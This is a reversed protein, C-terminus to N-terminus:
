SGVEIRGFKVSSVNGVGDFALAAVKYAGPPPSGPPRLKWHRKGSAVVSIPTTCRTKKMLKGSAALFRCKKGVQKFVSVQVREISGSSAKKGARAACGKDAAKGSVVFRSGTKVTAIRVTPKKRDVCYGPETALRPEGTKLADLGPVPPDTPLPTLVAKPTAAAFPAKQFAVDSFQIAGTANVGATGFRFEIRDLDSVDVGDAKLLAIPARFQNLVVHQTSNPSTGLAKEVGGSYFDTLKHVSEEGERDIVAVYFNQTATRPDYFNGVPNLIEDNSQFAARFVLNDYPTADRADGRLTTTLTAPASWALTLQPGWSQIAANASTTGKIPGECALLAATTQTAPPNALVTAFPDPNCWQFISFGTGTYTGGADNPATPSLTTPRVGPSPRLIDLREGAPAIYTQKIQDECIPVHTAGTACASAPISGAEGTLWPLLETEGGVYARLFTPMTALGTKRQDEPSLRAKGTGTNSGCAIDSGSRDSNPWRTNYFNHNAGEVYYEVKAYPDNPVAYKGREFANAGAITTVDGDCAPLLTAFNTGVPIQKNRDIPALSFVAQLNYKRGPEPRARNYAIFETVGEGGRSHGMIGVKSFDLKGALQTGIGTQGNATQIATPAPGPTGQNWAYLVDLTNAIIEARAFGGADLVNTGDFGVLAGASPSIVVYGWSALLDSIYNYGGWSPWFGTESGIDESLEPGSPGTPNVPVTPNQCAGTAFVQGAGTGGDIGTTGKCATHRGHLFLIVKYPNPDGKPWTISGELPQPLTTGPCKSSQGYQHPYQYGSTCPEEKSPILGSSPVTLQLTGANYYSRNVGYPGKTLPDPPAALATVPLVVSAIAALAVALALVKKM